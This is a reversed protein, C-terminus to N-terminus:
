PLFKLFRFIQIGLLVIWAGALTVMIVLRTRALGKYKEAELARDAIGQKLDAIEGNKLSLIHLGEQEYRNFSETLTRNLERQGALRANLSESEQRLSDAQAKLGQVQLLWTRKEAESTKRYREISGLESELILYWKDPEEGRLAGAVSALLLGALLVLFLKRNEECM